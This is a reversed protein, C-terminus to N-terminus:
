LGERVGHNVSIPQSRTRGVESKRAYVTLLLPYQPDKTVLEDTSLEEAAIGHLFGMASLVNGHVEVTVQEPEFRENMLKHIALGTFGWHWVKCWNGRELQSITGPVTLLLVGGPKLIRHLTAIAARLDYILHLTQTMIICDFADSPVEKAETLDCVITAKPNGEAVHLVDSRTVRTGGMRRTYADDGVELVRGRISQAHRNLFEEIYFRDIPKGRDFGFRRSIPTLRRLDGFRVQGVAPAAGIRVARGYFVRRLRRGMFLGTERLFTLPAYRLLIGLKHLYGEREKSAQNILQSFLVKGYIDRWSSLGARYARKRQSHGAIHVRQRRLVALVTPLMLCKDGSMNAEHIRYEAVVADHTAVPHARAIRLYVDYDECAQLSIDFGGVELLATRRYMVTAHMGIYNGRLFALYHDESPLPRCRGPVGARGARVRVHRGSVFGSGPNRAFCNLGSELAGPLLRDDADLFVLFDGRSAMMGANRAASLGRNEQFIYRVEPYRRAIVSTDDTSGDDVVLIESDAVGQALVSEIAEGLFRGHNYCPIVVSVM